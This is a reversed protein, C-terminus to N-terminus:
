KKSKTWEIAKKLDLSGTYVAKGCIAGYIDLSGLNVIDDFSSVGGSSTIDCSVAAKLKELMSINPGSLMGDTKIDTVILNKVGDAELAKAFDIYDKGSAKLWGDTRVDGDLVDVGVSVKDRGYERISELLFDRDRLAASGLIVRSVGANIYKEVTKMNRIGGGVEIPASVAAALEKILAFNDSEGSKAGNLDVIHIYEAGADEFSRATDFASEAVKSATGYDGKKLRVCMGDLIDIAPIVIM